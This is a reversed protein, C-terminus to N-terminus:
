LYLSIQSDILNAILFHLKSQDQYIKIALAGYLQLLVLLSAVAAQLSGKLVVIKKEGNLTITFYLRDSVIDSIM